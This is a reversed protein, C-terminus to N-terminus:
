RNALIDRIYFSIDIALMVLLTYSGYFKADSKIGTAAKSRIDLISAFTEAV